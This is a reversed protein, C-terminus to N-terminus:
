DRNENGKGFYKLKDYKLLNWVIQLRFTIGTLVFSGFTYRFGCIKNSIKVENIGQNM